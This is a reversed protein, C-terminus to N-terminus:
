LYEELHGKMTKRNPVFFSNANFYIQPQKRNNVYRSKLVRTTEVRRVTLTARAQRLVATFLFGQGSLKRKYEM